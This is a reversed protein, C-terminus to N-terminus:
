MILDQYDNLTYLCWRSFENILNILLLLRKTFFVNCFIPYARQVIGSGKSFLYRRQLGLNAGADAAKTPDAEDVLGATDTFPLHELNFNNQMHVM